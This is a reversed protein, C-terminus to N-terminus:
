APSRAASSYPLVNLIKTRAITLTMTASERM